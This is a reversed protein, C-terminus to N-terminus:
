EEDSDWLGPAFVDQWHELPGDEDHWTNLLVLVPVAANPPADVKLMALEYPYALRAGRREPLKVTTRGTREKYDEQWFRELPEPSLSEPVAAWGRPNIFSFSAITRVNGKMYVRSRVLVEDHLEIDLEAAVDPDACSLLRAQHDVSREKPGYARGTRSIRRLRATATAAVRPREAVTTGQGVRAATLGEAKLMQFARNVTTISAGFQQRVQKQTPMSDGPALTGDAIQRRFFTAIEAYGTNGSM